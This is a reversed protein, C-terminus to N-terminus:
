GAARARAAGGGAGQRRRRLGQGAADSDSSHKVIVIGKLNNLVNGSDFNDLVIHEQSSVM